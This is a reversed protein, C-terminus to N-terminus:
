VLGSLDAFQMMEFITYDRCTLASMQRQAHQLLADFDCKDSVCERLHEEARRMLTDIEYKCAFLYLKSAIANMEDCKWGSYLFTLM